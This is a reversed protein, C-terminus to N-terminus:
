LRFWNIADFHITWIVVRIWYLKTSSSIWETAYLEAFRNQNFCHCFITHSAETLLMDTKTTSEKFIVFDYILTRQPIIIMCNSEHHRQYLHTRKKNKKQKKASCRGIQHLVWFWHNIKVRFIRKLLFWNM